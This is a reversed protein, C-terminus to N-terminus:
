LVGPFLGFYILTFDFTNSVGHVIIPIWLNRRSGLYFLALWLGSFGEVIMGSTGQSAHAVGFVVSVLLTTAIWGRRDRGVLDAVRNILYGRYVMEEGFAAVLWSLSLLTLLLQLNGTLSAFDSLDPQNGSIWAVVQQTVFLNFSAILIGGGVGMALTRFWNAQAGLGVDRWRVGRLRMSAMGLVFLFLTKTYPVWGCWDAVFFLGVLVFDLAPHWSRRPGSERDVLHASAAPLSTTSGTDSSPAVTM